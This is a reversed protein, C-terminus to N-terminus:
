NEMFIIDLRIKRSYTLFFHLVKCFFLIRSQFKFYSVQMSMIVCRSSHLQEQVMDIEPVGKQGHLYRPGLPLGQQAFFVSWELAPTQRYLNM